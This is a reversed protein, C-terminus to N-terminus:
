IRVQSKYIEHRLHIARSDEHDFVVSPQGRGQFADEDGFAV